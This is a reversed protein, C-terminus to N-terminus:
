ESKWWKSLEAQLKDIQAIHADQQSILALVRGHLFETSMKRGGSVGGICGALVM